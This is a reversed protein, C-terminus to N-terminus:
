GLADMGAEETAAAILAGCHKCYLVCMIGVCVGLVCDWGM